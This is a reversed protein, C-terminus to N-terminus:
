RAAPLGVLKRIAPAMIGLGEDAAIPRTFQNPGDTTGAQPGSIWRRGDWRRGDRTAAYIVTIEGANPHESYPRGTDRMQQALEDFPEVGWAETKICAFLPLKKQEQYQLAANAITLVALQSPKVEANEDCALVYVHTERKDVDPQGDAGIPAVVIHLGGLTDGPDSNNLLFNLHKTIEEDPISM